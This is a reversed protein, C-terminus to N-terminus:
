HVAPLLTEKALKHPLLDYMLHLSSYHLPLLYLEETWIKFTLWSVVNKEWMICTDFHCM